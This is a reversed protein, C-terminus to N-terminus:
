RPRATGARRRACWRRPRPGPGAPLAPRRRHRVTRGHGGPVGSPVARQSRARSWRTAPSVRRSVLAPGYPWSPGLKREVARRRRNRSAPSDPARSGRGDFVVVEVLEDGDSLNIAVLTANRSDYEKFETKKAQGLKTVMVLYRKTEYDRTDIVAEIAAAAAYGLQRGNQDAVAVDGVYNDRPALDGSAGQLFLAPAEFAQELIERAAGVFDPSLLRNEWALTTPHCAYNVFVTVLDGLLDTAAARVDGIRQAKQLQRLRDIQHARFATGKAAGRLEHFRQLGMRLPM